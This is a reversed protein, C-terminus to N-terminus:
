LKTDIFMVLCEVVLHWKFRPVFEAVIWGCMCCMFAKCM